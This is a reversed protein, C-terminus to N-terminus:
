KNGKSVKNNNDTYKYTTCFVESDLKKQKSNHGFIGNYIRTSNSKNVKNNNVSVLVMLQIILIMLLLLSILLNSIRQSFILRKDM